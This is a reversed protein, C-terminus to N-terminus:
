IKSQPALQATNGIHLTHLAPHLTNAFLQTKIQFFYLDIYLFLLLETRPLITGISSSYTKKYMFNGSKYM